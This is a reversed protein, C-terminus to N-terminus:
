SAHGQLLGNNGHRVCFGILCESPQAACCHTTLSLTYISNSKRLGNGRTARLAWRTQFQSKGAGNGLRCGGPDLMVAGPIYHDM